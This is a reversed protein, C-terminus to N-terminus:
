LVLVTCFFIVKSIQDKLFAKFPKNTFVYRINSKFIMFAVEKNGSKYITGNKLINFLNNKGLYYLSSITM